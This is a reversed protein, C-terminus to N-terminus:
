TLQKSGSFVQKVKLVAAAHGPHKTPNWGKMDEFYKGETFYHIEGKVQYSKGEKSMFLISAYINSLINDKTKQFYNDAVILTESDYLRVCTAYIANTVGDDNVTTLVIPGEREMWAEIVENPMNTM